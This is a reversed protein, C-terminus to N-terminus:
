SGCPRKEGYSLPGHSTLWGSALCCTEEDITQSNMWDHIWWNLLHKDHSLCQELCWAYLTGAKMLLSSLYSLYSISTLHWWSYLAPYSVLSHKMLRVCSSFIPLWIEPITYQFASDTLQLVRPAKLDSARLNPWIHCLSASSIELSLIYLFTSALPIPLEGSSSPSAETGSKEDELDLEQSALPSTWWFRHHALMLKCQSAWSFQQAHRKGVRCETVHCRLKSNAM